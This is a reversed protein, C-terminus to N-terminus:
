GLEDPRRMGGLAGAPKARTSTDALLAKAWATQINSVSQIMANIKGEVNHSQDIMFATAGVTAATAPDDRASAIECMIRFLEFPNAYLEKLVELLRRFRTGLDDQGPYSAGDALWLSIASSETQERDRRM